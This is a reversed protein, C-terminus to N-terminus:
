PPAEGAALVRWAELHAALARKDGVLDYECDATHLMEFSKIVREAAAIRDLMFRTTADLPLLKTVASWPEKAKQAQNWARYFGLATEPRGGIYDDPGSDMLERCVLESIVLRESFRASAAWRDVDGPVSSGTMTLTRQSVRAFPSQSSESTTGDALREMEVVTRRLEEHLPAPVQGAYISSLETYYWIQDAKGANFREWLSAGVVRLDGVISRANHLKDCASVLLTDHDGVENLYRLKRGRWEPKEEVGPVAIADSCGMVIDAVRDGLERRIRVEMERGDDSDEVADHLLGGIAADEHGGYELVLAAVSMLHSLYPIQTAKRLQHGHVESALAFARQFRETL